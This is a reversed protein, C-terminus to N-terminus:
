GRKLEILFSIELLFRLLGVKGWRVRSNLLHTGIACDSVPKAPFANCARKQQFRGSCTDIRKRLALPVHQIMRDVLGQSIRSLMANVLLNIHPLVVNLSSYSGLILSATVVILSKVFKIEM